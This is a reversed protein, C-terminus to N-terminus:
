DAHLVEDVSEGLNLSHMGHSHQRWRFQDRSGRLFSM